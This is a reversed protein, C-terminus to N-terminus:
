KRIIHLRSKTIFKFDPRKDLFYEDVAKRCGSWDFYDDIVLIGGSVLHPTIRELCVMVSEYWDGDLHAMAVPGSVNLTNQFLGKVAHRANNVLSM